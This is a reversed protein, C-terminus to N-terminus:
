HSFGVDSIIKLFWNMRSERIDMIPNDNTWHSYDCKKSGDSWIYLCDGDPNNINIKYGNLLLKLIAKLMLTTNKIRVRIM